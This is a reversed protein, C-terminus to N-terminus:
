AAKASQAWAPIASDNSAPAPAPVPAPTAQAAPAGPTWSPLPAPANAIPTGPKPPNDLQAETPYDKMDVTLVQGLGNKAAYGNQAPEVKAKAIFQRGQLDRYGRIVRKAMAEPSEDSTKLGQSSDLILRITKRTIGAAISKGKEDVKGGEVTLNGWFKRGKYPGRLVTFEAKLYKSDGEKSATLAGERAEPPCGTHDAGGPTYTMRLFLPTGAPIPERIDPKDNSYDFPNTM